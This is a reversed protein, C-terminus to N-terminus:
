VAGVQKAFALGLVWGGKCDSPQEERGSVVVDGSIRGELRALTELRATEREGEGEDKADDVFVARGIGGSTPTTVGEYSISMSSSPHSPTTTTGTTTSQESLRSTDCLSPVQQHHYLFPYPRSITRPQVSNSTASASATATARKMAGWAIGHKLLHLPHRDHRAPRGGSPLHTAMMCNEGIVNKSGQEYRDGTSRYQNTQEMAMPSDGWSAESFKRRRRSTPVPIVAAPTRALSEEVAISAGRRSGIRSSFAHGFAMKTTSAGTAVMLLRSKRRPITHTQKVESPSSSSSSHNGATTTRRHESSARDTVMITTTTASVRGKEDEDGIGGGSKLFAAWDVLEDEDGKEGEEPKRIVGSRSSDAEDRDGASAGGDHEGDNRSSRFTLSIGKVMGAVLARSLRDFSKRPRIVTIGRGQGKGQGKGNVVAGFGRDTSTNVASETANNDKKTSYSLLSSRTSSFSFSRGHHHHRETGPADANSDQKLPVMTIPMVPPEHRKKKRSAPTNGTPTPSVSCVSSTTAAAAPFVPSTATLEAATPTREQVKTSWHANKNTSPAIAPISSSSSSTLSQLIASTSVLTTAMMTKTPRMVIAEGAPSATTPPPPSPTDAPLPPLRALAFSPIRGRKRIPSHTSFLTKTGAASTAAACATPGATSSSPEQSSIIVPKSAIRRHDHTPTLHHHHHQYASLDPQSGLLLTGATQQREDQKKEKEDDGLDEEEDDEEGFAQNKVSRACPFPILQVELLPRPTIGEGSTSSPFSPHRPNQSTRISHRHHQCPYFVSPPPSSM